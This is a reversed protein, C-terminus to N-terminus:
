IDAYCSLAYKDHQPPLLITQHTCTHTTHTTHTHLKTKTIHNTNHKYKIECVEFTFCIPPSCTHCIPPTCTHCIKLSHTHKYTQTPIKHVCFLTKTCSNLHRPRQSMGTLHNTHTHTHTHTHAYVM